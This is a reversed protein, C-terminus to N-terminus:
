AVGKLERRKREEVFWGYLEETEADYCVPPEAAMAAVQAARGGTKVIRKYDPDNADTLRFRGFHLKAKEPRGDGVGQNLGGNALLNIIAQPKILQEPYTITIRCAWEPVIARTRVDPTRNIDASRVTMMSMQPVGYIPILEGEVWVLRGIQAKKMGQTDLAANTLSLKFASALHALLTPAHPDKFTYPSGRYELLPEHKLGQRGGGPFLLERLGKNSMRNAIFGSSGVLCVDLRGETLRIVETIQHTAPKRSDQKKAM